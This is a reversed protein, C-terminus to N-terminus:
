AQERGTLPAAIPSVGQSTAAKYQATIARQYGERAQLRKWYGGVRESFQSSMDLYDALMVAYGVSIDASTFQDGCLYDSETLVADLARLRALFWRRYDNEVQPLRRQSQEFFGYRLVLTQPFTLTAEGFHLWNLYDGYRSGDGKVVLRKAPDREALYQCMAASETMFTPGDILAPVTGLPNVELYGRALFRPPFPLMKLEYPIELEELTWLPRFSRASVCHYLTIM